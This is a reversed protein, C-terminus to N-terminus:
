LTEAGRMNSTTVSTNAASIAAQIEEHLWKCFGRVPRRREGPRLLIYHMKPGSITRAFPQILRGEQLYGRFLWPSLLAVGVGEIAATADLDHTAYEDVYYRPSVTGAGAERFWRAWDDHDLLPLQMLDKPERLEISRALTPSLMPAADVPALPEVEFEPWEGIGTRIGVDFATGQRLDPSLDLEIRVADPSLHYKHLRPALWRAGFTPVCTVRLSRATQACADLAERMLGMGEAISRSLSIAADTPEIRPGSRRFLMVGIDAELNRIRLSVAAPTVGLEDAASSFSCLRVSAELFRLSELPPM